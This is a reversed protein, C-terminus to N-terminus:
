QNPEDLVLVHRSRFPCFFIALLLWNANAM